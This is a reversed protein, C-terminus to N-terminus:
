LQWKFDLLPEPQLAKEDLDKSEIFNFLRTDKETFSLSFSKSLDFDILPKSFNRDDILVTEINRVSKKSTKSFSYDAIVMEPQVDKKSYIKDQGLAIVPVLFILILFTNKM